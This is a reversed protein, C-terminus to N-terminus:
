MRAGRIRIALLLDKLIIDIRKHQMASLRADALLRVLYGQTTSDKSIGRVLRQMPMSLSSANNTQYRRINRLVDTGPRYRRPQYGACSVRTSKLIPM